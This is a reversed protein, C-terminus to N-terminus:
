TKELESIATLIYQRWKLVETYKMLKFIYLLAPLILMVIKILVVWLNGMEPVIDLVNDVCSVVVAAMALVFASYSYYDGATAQAKLQLLKKKDDGMYDKVAREACIYKNAVCGNKCKELRKCMCEFENDM